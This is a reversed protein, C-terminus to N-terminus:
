AVDQPLDNLEKKCSTYVIAIGLLLMVILIIKKM